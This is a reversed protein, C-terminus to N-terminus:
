SQVTGSTTAPTPGKTVLKIKATPLM